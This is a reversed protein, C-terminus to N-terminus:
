WAGSWAIEGGGPAASLAIPARQAPALLLLVAGATGALGGVVFATTSVFARDRADETLALGTPDCYMQAGATRCHQRANDDASKARLGAFIGIGVGVIGVGMSALGVPRMWSRPAGAQEHATADGTREGATSSPADASPLVPITVENSPSRAAIAITQRWAKRGPARAQVVHEGPDVPIGVGWEAAAVAAGDRLVELGRTENANPVRIVLRSLSPELRLAADRATREAEPRGAANARSAAERYALWASAFRNTKEYCEALNLLTGGNPALEQSRALKPCAEADRGQAM